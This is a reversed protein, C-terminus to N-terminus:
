AVCVSSQRRQKNKACKRNHDRACSFHWQINIEFSFHAKTITKVRLNLQVVEGEKECRGNDHLKIKKPHCKDLFLDLSSFYFCGVLDSWM